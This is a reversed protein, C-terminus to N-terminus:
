ETLSSKNKNFLFAMRKEESKSLEVIDKMLDLAIENSVV